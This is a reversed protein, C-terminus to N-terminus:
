RIREGLAAMTAKFWRSDDMNECYANTAADRVWKLTQERLDDDMRLGNLTWREWAATCVADYRTEWTLM